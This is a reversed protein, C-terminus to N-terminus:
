RPAAWGRRSWTGWRRRRPPVIRVFCAVVLHDFGSKRGLRGEEAEEARGRESDWRESPGGTGRMVDMKPLRADRRMGEEGRWHAEGGGRADREGYVRAVGDERLEIRGHGGALAGVVRARHSLWPWAKATGGHGGAM